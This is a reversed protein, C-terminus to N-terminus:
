GCYLFSSINSLGLKGWGVWNTKTEGEVEGYEVVFDEVRRVTSAMESLLSEVISNSLEVREGLFRVPITGKDHLKETVIECKPGVWLVLGGLLGGFGFGCSWSSGGSWLFGLGWLGFCWLCLLCWSGWSRLNLL